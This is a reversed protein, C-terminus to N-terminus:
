GLAAGSELLATIEDPSYGVEALIEATHQGLAPSPLVADLPTDSFNTNPGVLQMKGAAHHDQEIVLDNAHAQENDLLGEVFQVPMAPVGAGHFLRLWDESTKEAILEEVRVLLDDAFQVAEPAELDYGPRFRRDDFGVCDAMRKRLPDSLCAVAILGDETRYPRYYILMASPFWRAENYLDNLENYSLDAQQLMPLDEDYWQQPKTPNGPIRALHGSLTTMANALLSTGIKQGRGSKERHYLAACVSQVIAYGTTFDVFPTTRIMRPVGRWMIGESQIIGSFAQALVDYGPGGAYPGKLGYASAEAYIIRPNISSLTDYDIGLKAPVDPRHNTVVIDANEVLRHAAARGDSKTLDLQISRKGRNVAIFARSEHEAFPGGGDRWPDGWPPEIKIVDAGLDSLMVGSVPGAIIETFEIVRVGDLPGAM